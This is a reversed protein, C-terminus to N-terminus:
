PKFFRTKGGRPPLTDIHIWNSGPLNEMCIGLGELKSLLQVRVFDCNSNNSWDVGRGTIHASAKAGKVHANYDKGHYESGPCNVSNPRIWCHISIPTKLYDRIKEMALATVFINSKEEETPIHHIKWSPLYTAEGVTFHLTIKSDKDNWNTTM